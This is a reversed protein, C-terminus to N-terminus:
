WKNSNKDFIQKLKSKRSNKDAQTKECFAFRCAEDLAMTAWLGYM